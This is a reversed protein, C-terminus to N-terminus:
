PIIIKKSVESESTKLKAIYIGSSISKIPIQINQQEQNEIKWTSISQGLINFLTVKQVPEDMSNNNIMIISNNKIYNIKIDNNNINNEDISLTKNNNNSYRLVFRNDFTAKENM